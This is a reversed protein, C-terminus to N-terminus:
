NVVVPGNSPNGKVSDDTMRTEYKDRLAMTSQAAIWDGGRRGRMKFHQFNSIVAIVSVPVCM